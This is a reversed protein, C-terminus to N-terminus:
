AQAGRILDVAVVFGNAKKRVVDASDGPKYLASGLGFGTAGVKMYDAMKEPTIGGTPIVPLEKPLIARMAKLVAPPNGEAPFLKIADAGANIAAYAESPTSIGPVCTLGLAKSQKVIDIDTHPMIIIKGGADAVQQVQEVTVVTGAGILAKDGFAEAMLRISECPNPSNMPVELCLFGADILVQGIEIAEEPKIHRLVAVLPMKNLLENLNM